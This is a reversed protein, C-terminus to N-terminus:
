VEFKFSGEIPKTECSPDAGMHGLRGRSPDGGLAPTSGSVEGLQSQKAYDGMCGGEAQRRWGTGQLNAKNQMVQGGSITIRGQRTM